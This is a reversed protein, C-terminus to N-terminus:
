SCEKWWFQAINMPMWLVLCHLMWLSCRRCFSSHQMWHKCNRCLAVYNPSFHTLCLCTPNTQNLLKYLMYTKPRLAQKQAKHCYCESVAVGVDPVTSHEGNNEDVGHCHRIWADSLTWWRYGCWTRYLMWQRYGECWIIHLIWEAEKNIQDQVANM